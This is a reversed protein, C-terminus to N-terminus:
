EVGSGTRGTTFVSHGRTKGRRAAVCRLMIGMGGIGMILISSPEPVACLYVVRISMLLEDDMNIGNANQIVGAANWSLTQGGGGLIGYQFDQRRNAGALGTFETGVKDINSDTFCASMGPINLGFLSVVHFNGWWEGVPPPMASDAIDVRDVLALAGVAKSLKINGFDALAYDVTEYQFGEPPILFCDVFNENPQSWSTNQNAVDGDRYQDHSLVGNYSGAISTGYSETGGAGAIWTGKGSNVIGLMTNYGAASFCVGMFPDDMATAGGQHQFYRFPTHLSFVAGKAEGALSGLTILTATLLAVTNRAKAM